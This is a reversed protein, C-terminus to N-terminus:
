NVEVIHIEDKQLDVMKGNHMCVIPKTCHKHRINFAVIKAIQGTSLVVNSGILSDRINNLFTLCIGPELGSFMQNAITDLAEFPTVRRRYVRDSTMAEYIDAIAIIKADHHIEDGHLGIPYGSGDLREHHQLIGLKVSNPIQELGQILQYGEGSHRKIAEFEESTLKGPKDLVSLSVALKGIDHLLGALILNKLEKGQYNCWKGLIGTIIAVNLSHQFTHESHRQMEYLYDIAGITEALLIIKHDALERLELIPVEKFKQIHRFAEIVRNMTETYNKFFDVRTRKIEIARKGIREKGNGVCLSSIGWSKIKNIYSSTLRTGRELLKVEHEGATVEASLLMGPTLNEILISRM